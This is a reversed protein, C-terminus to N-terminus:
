FKLGAKMKIGTDRRTWRSALTEELGAKMKIGTDRLKNSPTTKPLHPLARKVPDHVLTNKAHSTGM